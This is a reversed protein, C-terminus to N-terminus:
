WWERFEMVFSDDKIENFGPPYGKFTTNALSLGAQNWLYLGGGSSTAQNREFFSDVIAASSRLQTYLVGGNIGRNGVLYFCLYEVFSCSSNQKLQTNCLHKSTFRSKSIELTANSVM